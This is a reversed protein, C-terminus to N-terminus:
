GAQRTTTVSELEEEEQEKGHARLAPLMIFTAFAALIMTMAVLMGFRQMPVMNSICLVAFGAGVQFANSIISPGVGATTQELTEGRKQRRWLFHIAYDVGIGLAIAAIMSTTLDIPIAFAGMVGIALALMLIAPLVGKVATLLSKFLLAMIIILIVIAVILSRIQNSITSSALAVNIVPSGTVSALILTADKGKSEFGYVPITLDTLAWEVRSELEPTPSNIELARLVSVSLRKAIIKNKEQFLGQTLSKATIEMGEEDRGCTAPLSDRLIQVMKKYDTFQLGAKELRGLVLEKRNDWETQELETVPPDVGDNEREDKLEDIDIFAYNDILHETVLADVASNFDSGPKLDHNGSKKIAAYVKEDAGAKIKETSFIKAVRVIKKATEARMIDIDLAREKESKPQFITIPQSAKVLNGEGDYEPVTSYDDKIDQLAFPYIQVARVARPIENDIFKQLNQVTSNVELPTIDGLRIQVLSSDKKKSVMQDIAATGELFPYLSGVRRNTVPIDARGGMAESMMILSDTISSVQDVEDLSRAYEVLKQLQALVFPSRMDGEFYIQLYTSGGFNRVMFKNALAPESDKSFFSDLTADPAIRMMGSLSILGLVACILLIFKRYKGSFGGIKGLPKVPIIETIKKPTKKGFSLIAPVVTLALLATIAVGIAAQLGFDRLPAIDMALFSIFGASTTAASAIVPPGMNRMMENIREKVNDAKGNFYGALMHIGYAGGIAMLITPLSSGVITLGKNQVAIIGMLWVIAVGVIGLALLVGSLNRFIIFTVLLVILAVVPTLKALDKKTGGALYERIFPSGGYYINKNKWISAASKKIQEAIKIPPTDGGLFCLIMAAKGDKSILNGVANKNNLVRKKLAKLESDSTPIKDMVLPTVRLGDPAPQPDPIETFSLVDFVGDIQSIEKTMKRVLKINERNLMTDAELGIIAVDLGGFKKNVRNFLKVDPNDQPLFQMVDDDPKLSPLFSGFLGTIVLAAILIVVRFRIM